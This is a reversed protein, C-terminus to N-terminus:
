LYEVNKIKGLVKLYNTTMKKILMNQGEIRIIGSITNIRISCKSYEILGKHNEIIIEESGTILVTPFNLVVDQPLDFFLAMNKKIKSM